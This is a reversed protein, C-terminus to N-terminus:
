AAQWIVHPRMGTSMGVGGDEDVWLAKLNHLEAAARIGRLGHLFLTKTWVEADAPDPGVVTVALLGAGGPEGTRPDVIHHVRKGGVTWSRLKISTTACASETVSLVAVPQQGGRPDEVGVSWGDGDPGAGALYCDGGADIIFAPCTDAIRAAAWRVALGKGIGGLDIPHPGIRVRDQVSDLGPQWVDDHPVGAAGVPIAVEGSAFPLSRDYGLDCLTRLVRPEFLGGTMLHARAAAAIAGYCYSGVAYWEDAAANARMLDSRDDFRTCEQEVARFVTEVQQFAAAPDVAGVGIRVNVDSAMCRFTGLWDSELVQPTVTAPM